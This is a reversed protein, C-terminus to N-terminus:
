IVDPVETYLRRYNHLALIVVVLVIFMGVILSPKALWAPTSRKRELPSVGHYRKM